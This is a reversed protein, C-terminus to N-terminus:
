GTRELPSTDDTMASPSAASTRGTRGSDAAEEVMGALVGAAIAWSEPSAANVQADYEVAHRLDAGLRHILKPDRVDHEWLSRALRYAKRGQATLKFENATM